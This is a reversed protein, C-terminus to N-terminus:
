KKKRILEMTLFGFIIRVESIASAPTTQTSAIAQAISDQNPAGRVSPFRRLSRFGISRPEPPNPLIIDVAAISSAAKARCASRGLRARRKPTVAINPQSAVICDSSRAGNMPAIAPNQRSIQPDTMALGAPRRDQPRALRITPSRPKIRKKWVSGYEFACGLAAAAEVM